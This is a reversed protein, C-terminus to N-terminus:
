PMLWFFSSMSETPPSFLPKNPICVNNNPGLTTGGVGSGERGRLIQLVAVGWWPALRAQQKQIFSTMGLEKWSPFNSRVDREVVLQFREARVLCGLPLFNEIKALSFQPILTFYVM